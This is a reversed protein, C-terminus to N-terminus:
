AAARPAIKDFALVAGPTAFFGCQAVLFRLQEVAQVTPQVLWKPDKPEARDFRRDRYDAVANKFTTLTNENYPFRVVFHKVDGSRLGCAAGYNTSSACGTLVAFLLALAIKRM